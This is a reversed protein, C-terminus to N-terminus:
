LSIEGAIRYLEADLTKKMALAERIDM